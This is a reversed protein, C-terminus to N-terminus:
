GTTVTSGIRSYAKNLLDEINKGSQDVKQDLATSYEGVDHLAKIAELILETREDLERSIREKKNAMIKIGLKNLAIEAESLKKDIDEVIEGIDAMSKRVVEEVEMTNDILAMKMDSNKASLADAIRVTLRAFIHVASVLKKWIGKTQKDSNEREAEEIADLTFVFTELDKGEENLEDARENFATSALLVNEAVLEITDSAKGPKCALCNRLNKFFHGVKKLYRPSRQKKEEVPASLVFALCLVLISLKVLTSVM